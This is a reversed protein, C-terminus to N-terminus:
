KRQISKKLQMFMVAIMLNMISISTTDQFVRAIEHIDVHAHHFTVDNVVDPILGFTAGRVVHKQFRATKKLIPHRSVRRIMIRTHVCPVRM